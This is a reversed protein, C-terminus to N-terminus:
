RKAIREVAAQIAQNVQDHFDSEIASGASSAFAGRTRHSVEESSTANLPSWCLPAATTMDVIFLSGNLVGASFTKESSAQPLKRATARVIAVYRAKKVEAWYYSYTPNLTSTLNGRLFFSWKELEADLKGGASLKSLQEFDAIGGPVADLTPELVVQAPCPKVEAVSEPLAALVRAVTEHVQKQTDGASSKGGNKCALLAALPLVLWVPRISRVVDDTM